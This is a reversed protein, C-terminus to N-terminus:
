AQSKSPKIPQFSLGFSQIERRVTSFKRCLEARVSEQVGGFCMGEEKTPAKDYKGFGTFWREM